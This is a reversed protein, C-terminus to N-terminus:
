EKIIGFKMVEFKLQGFTVTVFVNEFSKKYFLITSFM